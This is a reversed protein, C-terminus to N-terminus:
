RQRRRRPHSRLRRRRSHHRQRERGMRRRQGCGTRYHRRRDGCRRHDRLRPRRQLEGHDEPDPRGPRWLARPHRLGIRRTGRFEPGNAIRWVEGKGTVPDIIDTGPTDNISRSTARTGVNLLLNTINGPDVTALGMDPDTNLVADGDCGFSFEALTVEALTERYTWSFIGFGITFRASLDAAIRGTIPDFICGNLVDEGRLEPPSADAVEGNPFYGGIEGLLGGEIFVGVGYLSVGAGARIQALAHAVPTGDQNTLYIGDLPNGTTLGKTDYAIAFDIGATFEGSLSIGIPGLIPFFFPGVVAPPPGLPPIDYQILIPSDPFLSPLFLGLITEPNDLIPFTLGTAASLSGGSVATAGGEFLGKIEDVTQQFAQIGALIDDLLSTPLEAPPDSLWDTGDKHFGGLDIRVGGTDAGPGGALQRIIAMAEAFLSVAEYATDNGSAKLYKGIFDLLNVSNDGDPEPIVDIDAVFDIVTAFPEPVPESLVDMIDKLPFENFPGLVPELIKTLQGLLGGLDMEVNEFGITPEGLTEGFEWGLVFDAYITPLIDTLTSEFQLKLQANGSPTGVTVDAAAIDGVATGNAISAAVNLAIEPDAPDNLEDTLKIKVLGLSTEGSVEAAAELGLTLANTGDTITLTETTTDYSLTLNLKASLSAEFDASASFGVFDGGIGFSVADPDFVASAGVDALTITVVNGSSTASLGDIVAGPTTALTNIAAEIAAANDETLSTLGSLNSFLSTPIAQLAAGAIPLDQDLAKDAVTEVLKTFLSTFETAITM